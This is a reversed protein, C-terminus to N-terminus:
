CFLLMTTATHKDKSLKLRSNSYVARLMKITFASKFNGSSSTKIKYQNRLLDKNTDDISHELQNEEWIWLGSDFRVPRETEVLTHAGRVVSVKVTVLHIEM